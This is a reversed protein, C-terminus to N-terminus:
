EYVFVDKIRQWLSKSRLSYVELVREQYLGIYRELEKRLYVEVNDNTAGHLTNINGSTSDVVNNVSTNAKPKKTRKAIVKNTGKSVVKKNSKVDSNPQKKNM